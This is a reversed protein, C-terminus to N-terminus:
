INSMNVFGLTEILAYRKLYGRFIVSSSVVVLAPM